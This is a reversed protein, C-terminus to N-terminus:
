TKNKGLIIGLRRDAVASPTLRCAVCWLMGTVLKESAHLFDSFDISQTLSKESIGGGLQTTNLVNLAGKTKRYFNKFLELLPEWLDQNNGIVAGCSM